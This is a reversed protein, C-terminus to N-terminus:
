ATQKLGAMILEEYEPKGKSEHILSVRKIIEKLGDDMSANKEFLDCVSNRGHELHEKLILEQEETLLLTMISSEITNAMYDVVGAIDESLKKYKNNLEAIETQINVLLDQQIEREQLLNTQTDLATIRAEVGQLLAFINDKIMGYKVEDEIPMDKILLSVGGYNIVTRCGFDYFREKVKLESLLQSEMARSMGNAEMNKTGFRGRMQLSCTIGYHNLSQFLLQGLQDFNECQHSDLLFQINCGLDSTNSMATMAVDTAAKLQGKLQRNAIANFVTSQLRTVISEIPEQISICDDVGIEYVTLQTDLNIREIFLVVPIDSLSAHISNKIKKLMAVSDADSELVDILIFHYENQKTLEILQEFSNCTNIKFYSGLADIHKSLETSNYAIVEYMKTM